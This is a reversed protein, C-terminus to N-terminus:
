SISKLHGIFANFGVNHQSCVEIEAKKKMNKLIADYARQGNSSNKNDKTIVPIGKKTTERNLTDLCGTTKCRKADNCYLPLLWCEICDICIAFIIKAGYKTRIEEKILGQLKDVIDSHLQESTKPQGNLTHLVDFPSQESMDTDIQIVLYDNETMIDALEERECYKLVENWGGTNEQTNNVLKPQIQNIYPEQDKFYRSLIHKIVRHESAGETILAFTM